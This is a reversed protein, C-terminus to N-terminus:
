YEGTAQKRTTNNDRRQKCVPRREGLLKLTWAAPSKFSFMAGSGDEGKTWRDRPDKESPEERNQRKNLSTMKTTDKRMKVKSKNALQSLRVHGSM